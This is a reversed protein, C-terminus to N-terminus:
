KGSRLLIRSESLFYFLSSKLLYQGLVELSALALSTLLGWGLQPAEPVSCHNLGPVESASHRLSATGAGTRVERQQKQRIWKERKM